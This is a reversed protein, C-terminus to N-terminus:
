RGRGLWRRHWLLFVMLTWLQKRNDRRRARHDDLLRQVEAADFLGVSAVSRPSLLDTAFERLEGNLWRTLPIGFGKKPRDAIGAPLRSRMLAKLIYKTTLGRCKWHYPLRHAFEVVRYDLFPARVELASRMSARDVKVLVGDMLYARLYEYLVRQMPDAHALEARWRDVDDFENEAALARWADPRFLRAREDRDFAALWRAHRYREPGRLGRLFRTAKFGFSFNTDRVPLRSVWSEALGRVAAPLRRVFAALREAPFTPYGAFLEDSGDGGLAVTVRRRAFKALLASPLLSADALPEDALDAIEPVLKLVDGAVFATEHHTTGLYEAVRRAYPAEDFSEEHFSISFTEVPTRSAQVAYYAVTSSDLGGSLLVGVPVDAALRPTVSAALLRDLEVTAHALGIPEAPADPLRWYAGTRKVGDKWVLYSAPSLKQIHKFITRPAPVYEYALYKNLAVLDLERTVAPHAVLAKLESGFVLTNGFAGWFLPKKGFRDRALTLEGTKTDFLALAFMGNLRAFAGTGFEDWLALIVETDSESRFTRGRAALEARLERFNYIEGNFTIWVTRDANPMPQHGAPSLDFIALRAHALGAGEGTWIGGGDPGRYRIAGIMQELDDRGGAGVFGAIGCM